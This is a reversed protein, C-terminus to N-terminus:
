RAPILADDPPSSRMMRRPDVKSQAPFLVWRVTTRNYRINWRDAVKRSPCTTNGGPTGTGDALRAAPWGMSGTGWVVPLVPQYAPCLSDMTLPVRATVALQYLVALGNPTQPAMPVGFAPSDLDNYCNCFEKHGIM